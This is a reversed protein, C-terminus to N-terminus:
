VGKIVGVPEGTVPTQEYAQFAAFRAQVEPSGLVDAVQWMDSEHWSGAFHLFYNTFLSGEVCARVLAPDNWRSEYLFPYKWAMELTWMAQFRYDLWQVLGANQVEYNVHTQDGGGTVSEIRQDYKGFWGRMVDAHHTVNFVLLGACAEDPQAPLGHFAYLRELSIFLSSDLPYSNSYQSHRLFAMRRLVAELPYPTNHRFSVMGIRSPNYGDFISPAWPNVLFDTDIYCVSTVAPAVRRLTDALLLKQWTAKKWVPNDRAILDDDAVVLGLGHRECYLRWTPLACSEWAHYYAEGIAITAIVNGSPGPDIMVKM